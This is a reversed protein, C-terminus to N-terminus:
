SHMKMSEAIKVLTELTETDSFVSVSGGERPWYLSIGGENETWFATEGNVTTQGRGTGENDLMAKGNEGLIEEIRILNQRGNKYIMLTLGAHVERMSLEYGEPIYAPLRGSQEGANGTADGTVMAIEDYTATETFLLAVAKQILADVRIDFLASMSFVVFALAAACAASRRVARLLTARREERRVRGYASQFAREAYAPLVTKEAIQAIRANEALEDEYLRLALLKMKANYKERIIRKEEEPKM